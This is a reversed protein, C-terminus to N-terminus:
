FPELSSEIDVVDISSSKLTPIDFEASAPHSTGTVYDERPPPKQPSSQCCGMEGDRGGMGM